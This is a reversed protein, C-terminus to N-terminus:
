FVGLFYSDAYILCMTGSCSWIHAYMHVYMHGHVHDTPDTRDVSFGFIKSKKVGCGFRVLVTNGVDGSQKWANKVM